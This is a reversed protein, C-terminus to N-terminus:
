FFYWHQEFDKGSGILNLIRQPTFLCRTLELSINTKFMKDGLYKGGKMLSKGLLMRGIGAIGILGTSDIAARGYDINGKETVYRDKFFNGGEAYKNNSQPEEWTSNMPCSGKNGKVPMGNYMCPM